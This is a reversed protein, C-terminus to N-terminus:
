ALCLVDWRHWMQDCVYVVEDRHDVIVPIYPRWRSPVKRNLLVKHITKHHYSDGVRPLRIRHGIWRTHQCVIRYPGASLTEWTHIDAYRDLDTYPIRNWWVLYLKHHSKYLRIDGIDKWWKNVCMIYYLLEQLTSQSGNFHYWVQSLLRYVDDTHAISQYDICQYSWQRHHYPSLSAHELVFSKQGTDNTDIHDFLTKISRDLVDGGNFDDAIQYWPWIVEHRFRNRLSTYIDDNTPDCVYAIHNQICRQTITHKSVRILPRLIHDDCESMTHIGNIGCWRCLNLLLTELRDQLHHGTCVRDAWVEQMVHYLYSRREYRLDSERSTKCSLSTTWVHIDPRQSFFLRVQDIETKSEIRIGHDISVIHLQSLPYQHQQYHDIVQMAMMMSDAWGSVALVCVTQSTIHRHLIASVESLVVDSM